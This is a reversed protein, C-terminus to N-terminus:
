EQHILNQNIMVCECGGGYMGVYNQLFLLIQGQNTLPQNFPGLTTHCELKFHINNPTM